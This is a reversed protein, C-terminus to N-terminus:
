VTKCMQSKPCQNDIPQLPSKVCQWKKTICCCKKVHFIQHFEAVFFTSINVWNTVEACDCSTRLTFVVCFNFATYLSKQHFTYQSKQLNKYILINCVYIHIVTQQHIIIHWQCRVWCLTVHSTKKQGFVHTSSRGWYFSVRSM